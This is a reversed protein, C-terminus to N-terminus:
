TGENIDEMKINLKSGDIQVKDRRIKGQRMKDRDINEDRYEEKKKINNMKILRRWGGGVREKDRM